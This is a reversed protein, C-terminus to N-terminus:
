DELQKQPRHRYNDFLTPVPAAGGAMIIYESFGTLAESVGPYVDYHM